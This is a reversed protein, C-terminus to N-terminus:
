SFFPNRFCCFFARCFPPKGPLLLGGTDLLLKLILDAAALPYALVGMDEVELLQREALPDGVLEGVDGPTPSEDEGETNDQANPNKEIGNGQDVM